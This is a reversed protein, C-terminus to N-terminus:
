PNRLLTFSAPRRRDQLPQMTLESASNVILLYTAPYVLLQQGASPQFM